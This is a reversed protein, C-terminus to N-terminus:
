AALERTKAAINVRLKRLTRRERDAMAQRSVGIARATEAISPSFFSNLFRLQIAEREQDPLKAVERRVLEIRHPDNTEVNEWPTEGRDSITDLLSMTETDSGRIKSDLSIAGHVHQLYSRATERDVQLFEACQDLTPAGHKELRSAIWARLKTVREAVHIPLRIARDYTTCARNISQRIWWYAYTSFKYGRETDFKEIARILGFTGEQMLDEHSLHDCRKRYQKAIVVVMRMNATVMRDRARRGRTLIRQQEKTYPGSPNSELLALMKAVSRGLIIEEEATLLPTRGAANM